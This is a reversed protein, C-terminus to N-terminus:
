DGSPGIEVYDLCADEGGDAKARILIEDGSKVAVAKTVHRTSTHGNPRPSPLQRDAVWEDIKRGNLWLEFQSVGNNQDFYQVALDFTGPRGSYQFGASANRNSSVCEVARGGSAAEWPKVDMIRYGDLKMSEAEVRNPYHGARGFQDPIGSTKLFWQCIADRWVLAHGAQYQLRDLVEQYRRDDVLGNLSSWQQVFGAAQEAGWYHSDYVHQIVTKGSHLRHTYAVHHFFLLLEDPCSELSEFEQAVGPRYQATFGTGTAVTRDM